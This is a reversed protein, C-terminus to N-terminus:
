TAEPGDWLAALQPDGALIADCINFVIPALPGGIVDNRKLYHDALAGVKAIRDPRADVVM